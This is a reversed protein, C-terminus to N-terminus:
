YIFLGWFAFFLLVHLMAVTTIWFLVRGLRTSAVVPKRGTVVAKLEGTRPPLQALGRASAEEIVRTLVRSWAWVVLTCVIQIVPWSWYMMGPDEVPAGGWGLKVVAMIVQGLGAVFLVVTAMTTVTLMLLANGFGRAFGLTRGEQRRIMHRLKLGLAILATIAAALLLVVTAIHLVVGYVTLPRDGALESPVVISQYIRTGAVRESTQKLGRVTGQSWNVMDTVYNDSLATGEDAEDGLRLVHNAVPYSRVTIDWNGAHHAMDLIKRVGDVQATMVDKSGYAVFTPISYGVDFQTPVDLNQLGLMSSDVHFLRRVISQYGAHAGTLAFDQAVMFGLSQRPSYVMPSLLVQFAIRRDMRLLYPSIWTSESTAYIGINDADVSSLSRLYNIIQDYAAASGPYDRNVNGTSWVPKDPVATAFGASALDFAVDGFSNDCTGYGAGHMFVVGPRGSPAGQPERILVRINQVEGTSPRKAKITVHRSVVKYSGRGPLPTGTPNHFTVATNPSLTEITQGTPEKNWPVATINSVTVLIGILIIFIPVSVMLRRGRGWVQPIQATQPMQSAPSQETGEASEANETNEPAKALIKPSQPADPERANTQNQDSVLKM